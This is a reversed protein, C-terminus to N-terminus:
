LGDIEGRELDRIGRSAAARDRAEERWRLIAAVLNVLFSM